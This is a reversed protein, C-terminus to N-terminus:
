EKVGSDVSTSEATSSPSSATLPLEKNTAEIVPSPSLEKVKEEEKPEEAKSLNEEKKEFNIFSNNTSQLQNEDEKSPLIVEEEEERKTEETEEKKLQFPISPEAQTKPAVPIPDRYKLERKVPESFM